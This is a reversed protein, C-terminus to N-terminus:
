QLFDACSRIKRFYNRIEIETSRNKNNPKLKTPHFISIGRKELGRPDCQAHWYCAAFKTIDVIDLNCMRVFIPLLHDDAITTYKKAITYPPNFMNRQEMAQLLTKTLIMAGGQVGEGEYYSSGPNGFTQIFKEKEARYIQGWHENKQRRVGLLGFKENKIENLIQSDVNKNIFLTDYDVSMFHNFAIKQQFYQISELMLCFLGTGWGWHTQSFYLNSAGFFRIMKEQFKISGGDVAFVVKTRPTISFNIADYTDILFDIHEKEYCRIVILLDYSNM